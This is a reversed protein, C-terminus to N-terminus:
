TTTAATTATTPMQSAPEQVLGSFYTDNDILPDNLTTMM